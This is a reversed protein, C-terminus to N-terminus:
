LGVSNNILKLFFFGRVTDKFEQATNAFVQVLDIKQLSRGATANFEHVKGAFVTEEPGLNVDINPPEIYVKRHRDMELFAGSPAAMASIIKRKEQKWEAKMHEFCQEYM